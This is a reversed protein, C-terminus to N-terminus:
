VPAVEQGYPLVISFTAGGKPNNEAWIKGNHAEIIEKCIALGLGTGGAKTKTKSSQIFEDFVTELEGEPVGTGEDKIRIKLAPIPKMDTQSQGASLKEHDFSVTISRGESTFKVANSILNRLVQNIKFEDCTVITSLETERMILLFSRKEASLSFESILNRVTMALNTRKFEYDARGSELKSLDLLDNLLTLLREGSKRTQLFYHLLKERDVKNIKEIGYKSYSLIHHMPTRLEHSINALFESKLRNAHEAEEKAQQYDATREKVEEELQDNTKQLAEEAQKRSTIDIIIGNAWEINDPDNAFAIGTSRCHLWIWGKQPHRYRLEEDFSFPPKCGKQNAEILRPVDDPHANAFWSSFIRTDEPPIGLIDNFSSSVHTVIPPMPDPGVKLRYILYGTPNKLLSTFHMNQERLSEEVKKRETIDRIVGLVFRKDNSGGFTLSIEISFHENNARM